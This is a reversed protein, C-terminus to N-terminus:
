KLGEKGEERRGEKGAEDSHCAPVDAGILLRDESKLLPLSQSPAPFIVFLAAEWQTNFAAQFFFFAKLAMQTEFTNFSYFVDFPPLM